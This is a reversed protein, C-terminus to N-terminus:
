LGAFNQRRAPSGIATSSRWGRSAERCHCYNVAWVDVLVAFCWGNLYAPKDELLRRFTWDPSALDLSDASFVREFSEQAVNRVLKEVMMAIVSKQTVVASDNEGGQAVYGCNINQSEEPARIKCIEFLIDFNSDDSKGLISSAVTTIMSAMLTNDLGMAIQKWEPKLAGRLVAAPHDRLKNMFAFEEQKACALANLANGLDVSGPVSVLVAVKNARGTLQDILTDFKRKRVERNWM